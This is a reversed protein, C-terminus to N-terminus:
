KGSLFPLESFWAVPFAIDTVDAETVLRISPDQFLLDFCIFMGFRAGFDTEFVSLHAGGATRNFEPEICLNYKTYRNICYFTIVVIM